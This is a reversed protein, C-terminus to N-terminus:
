APVWGQDGTRPRKVERSGPFLEMPLPRAQAGGATARQRGAATLRELHSVFRTKGGDCTWVFCRYAPKGNHDFPVVQDDRDAFRTQGDYVPTWARAPPPRPPVGEEGGRWMTVGVAVVAVAVVVAAATVIKGRQKM